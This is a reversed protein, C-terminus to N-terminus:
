SRKCSALQSARTLYRPHARQRKMCNCSKGIVKIVCTVFKYIRMLILVMIKNRFIITKDKNLSKTTKEETAGLSHQSLVEFNMWPRKRGFGKWNMM